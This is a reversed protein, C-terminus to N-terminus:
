CPESIHAGNGRFGNDAAPTFPANANYNPKGNGEVLFSTGLGGSVLDLEADSVEIPENM